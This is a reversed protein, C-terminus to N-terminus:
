RVSHPASLRLTKIDIIMVIRDEPSRNLVSHVQQNDFWWISGPEMFVQEDGARFVVGPHAQMTLQYREYYTATAGQDAHPTIECGPPLRTIIVRGLREGHVRAMLGFVIPQAQDLHAFAPFTVCDNSDVATAVLNEMRYENFRLLIDDVQAHPTNPYTTRVRDGNWLHPQTQLQHLLPLCDIGNAIQQFFRV